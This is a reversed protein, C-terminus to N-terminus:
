RRCQFRQAHLSHAFIEIDCIIEVGAENARQASWHPKPLKDPVGPSLVLSDFISWVAAALDKLRVGLKAAEDRTVKRDDWAWVDAGGAALSLAASIGTRGLGFVAITQGKFTGAKIM